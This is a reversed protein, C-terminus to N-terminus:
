WSECAIMPAIVIVNFPALLIATIYNWKSSVLRRRVILTAKPVKNSLM